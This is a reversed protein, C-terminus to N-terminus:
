PTVRHSSSTRVGRSYGTETATVRVAIRHHADAHKLTYTSHTAKAIAHGDRTWRYALHVTGPAWTGAKATLKKGVTIHGSITPKPSKAFSACAVDHDFGTGTETWQVLTLRGATPSTGSCRKYAATQDAAVAWYPLKTISSSAPLTGLVDHLHASAAYLGATKKAAKLGSIMGELVARNRTTSSSWSNGDPGGEVDIWWRGVSATMRHVDDRALSSGYVWSCARSANRKGAATKKCSGYPSHVVTGGKTRNGTPWWSAQAVPPNASALYVDVPSHGVGPATSAWALEPALCPNQETPLGTNVAVVAFDGLVPLSDCQFRSVDGGVTPVTAALAAEPVLVAAIVLAAAALSRRMVRRM